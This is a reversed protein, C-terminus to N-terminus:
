YNKANCFGFPNYLAPFANEIVRTTQSLGSTSPIFDTFGYTPNAPTQGLQKALWMATVPSSSVVLILLILGLLEKLKKRSAKAKNGNTDEEIKRNGESWAYLLLVIALGLPKLPFTLILWVSLVSACAGFSPVALLFFIGGVTVVAVALYNPYADPLWEFRCLDRAKSM